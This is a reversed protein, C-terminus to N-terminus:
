ALVLEAPAAFDQHWDMESAERYFSAWAHQHFRPGDPLRQGAVYRKYFEKSTLGYREELVRLLHELTTATYLYRTLTAASREGKADDDLRISKLEGEQM